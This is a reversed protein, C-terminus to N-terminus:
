DARGMAAEYIVWAASLATEAGEIEKCKNLQHRLACSGEMSPCCISIAVDTLFRAM